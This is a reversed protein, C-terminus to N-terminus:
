LNLSLMVDCTEEKRMLQKGPVPILPVGRQLCVEGGGPYYGSLSGVKMRYLPM